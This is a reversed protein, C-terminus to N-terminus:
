NRMNNLINKQRKKIGITVGDTEIKDFLVARVIVKVRLTVQVQSTDDVITEKKVRTKEKRATQVDKYRLYRTKTITKL